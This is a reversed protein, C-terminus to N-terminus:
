APQQGLHTHELSPLLIKPALVKRLFSGSKSMLPTMSLQFIQLILHVHFWDMEAVQLCKGGRLEGLWSCLIVPLSLLYILVPSWGPVYGKSSPRQLM